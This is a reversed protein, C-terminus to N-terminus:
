AQSCKAFALGCVTILVLDAPQEYEAGARLPLFPADISYYAAVDAIDDATLAKAIPTMFANSRMGSAFDRLQEALYYASQGLLVRFRAVRM